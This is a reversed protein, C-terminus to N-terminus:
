RSPAAAERLAQRIAERFEELPLAGEIKRGNIFFTPTGGVGADLGERQDALVADRFRASDLCETFPPTDLGLRRAYGLLEDRSFDPQAVFLLDHYEWYRGQAGACRAALAAPLAGEHSRLPFDKFTIKVTDPFEAQLRALVVQARKCYPCQYDSWEFITVPAAAPGRTMAPDANFRPAEQASVAGAGAILLLAAAARRTYVRVRAM